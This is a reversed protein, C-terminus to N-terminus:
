TSVSGITRVWMSAPWGFGDRIAFMISCRLKSSEPSVSLVQMEWRVTLFFSVLHLLYGRSAKSFLVVHDAALQRSEYHQIILSGAMSEVNVMGSHSAGGNTGLGQHGRACAMYDAETMHFLWEDLHVAELPLPIQAEHTFIM